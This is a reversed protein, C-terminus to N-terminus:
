FFFITNLHEFHGEIPLWPMLSVYSVRFVVMSFCLVHM